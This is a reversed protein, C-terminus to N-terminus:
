CTPAAFQFSYLDADSMVFRLRVPGGALRSLDPGANWNVVYELSDGFTEPCDDLTFGPIPAGAADQAEVRVSGAASTSFNLVLRDGDFRLLKTIFEGGSLPAHVSVFGDVRVTYRRFTVSNGRWYHETPYISLENPAGAVDSETEVLGWNQYNDGYTWNGEHRLGPRIFAEGWRKFSRGDRSTMLLGDSLAMGYRDSVSSRLHRHDPEPLAEMAASWGREIYRTPFGIFIHPARYYPIVQNTYLQEPPAGPYELWEPETWDVFDSSTATRIDRRGDRFDRVYARYEGRVSDWFALNQSDFAGDVIVPEPRLMSWHIADPSQMAFLADKTAHRAGGVAKYRAEPRCDPNADKFPSFGHMGKQNEGGGRVVINNDSKGDFEFLGLNPRYWHIGDRSEAYAVAMGHPSALEGGSLDVHWAKYYMRYLDGDQFVTTYGCMSGEWPKDTVLTPERPTPYHMRLAAGGSMREILHEDVLLELRQGIDIPTGTDM